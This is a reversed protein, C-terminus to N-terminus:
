YAPPEQHTEVVILAYVSLLAFAACWVGLKVEFLCAWRHYADWCAFLKEPDILTSPFM